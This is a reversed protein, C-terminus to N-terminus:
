GIGRINFAGSSVFLGFAWVEEDGNMECFAVIVAAATNFGSTSVEGGAASPDHELSMVSGILLVVVGGGVELKGRTAGLVGIDVIFEDMPELGRLVRGKVDVVPYLMTGMGAGIQNVKDASAIVVAEDVDNRGLASCSWGCSFVDIGTSSSEGCVLTMGTVVDATGVGSGRCLWIGSM